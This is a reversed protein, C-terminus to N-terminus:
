AGALIPMSDAVSAPDNQQEVDFRIAPEVIANTTPTLVWALKDLFEYQFLAEANDGFQFDYGYRKLLPFGKQLMATKWQQPKSSSYVYGVEVAYNEYAEALQLIYPRDLTGAPDGLGQVRFATVRNMLTSEVEVTTWGMVGAAVGKAFGEKIFKIQIKRVTERTAVKDAIMLILEPIEAAISEATFAGKMGELFAKGFTRLRPFGVKPPTVSPKPPPTEPPHVQVQTRVPQPRPKVPLSRPKLAGVGNRQMAPIAKTDMTFLVPNRLGRAAGGARVEAVVNADPISLGNRIGEDRWARLQQLSIQNAKMDVHVRLRDLVARRRVADTANMGQGHLFEHEVCKPILVEHSDQQMKLIESEIDPLKGGEIKVLINNDLWVPPKPPPPM